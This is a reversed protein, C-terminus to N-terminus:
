LRRAAVFTKAYLGGGNLISKGGTDGMTPGNSLKRSSIFRYGGNTDVGLYLGVHDVDTGDNTSADNFVLDGPRLQQLDNKTISKRPIIVTGPGSALMEVARRPLAIHSPDASYALPFGLKYGWIMRMYGSCDLSALQQAEPNDLLPGYQRSIGLYDNFDSGEERTGDALLPGYDANSSILMNNSDRLEPAGDIYQMALALVDPTTDGLANKLWEKDIVTDYATPLHRVWTDHAVSAAATSETFTRQPGRLTVTRSGKTFTALWGQSDRVDTRTVDGNSLTYFYLGNESVPSPEVARAHRASVTNATTEHPTQVVNSQSEQKSVPAIAYSSVKAPAFVSTQASGVSAAMMSFVIIFFLISARNKTKFGM